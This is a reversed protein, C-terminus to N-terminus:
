KDEEGRLIREKGGEKFFVKKTLDGLLSRLVNTWYNIYGEM